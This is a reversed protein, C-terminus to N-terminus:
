AFKRKRKWWRMSNSTFFREYLFNNSTKVYEHETNHLVALSDEVDKSNKNDKSDKNKSDEESVEQQMYATSVLPPEAVLHKKILCSQFVVIKSSTQYLNSIFYYALM